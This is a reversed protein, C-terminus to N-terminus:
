GGGLAIFFADIDAGNLLGDSNMDALMPDCNPFVLSYQSPDGLALFFPDIDGGNFLGDCNLDGARFRRLYRINSPPRSPTGWAIESLNNIDPVINDFDDRTIQLFVGSQYLWIDWHRRSSDWRDFAIDAWDNIVPIIGNDTLATTVGAEWFDIADRGTVRDFWTWVVQGSNNIDPAQPAFQGSTLETITGGSVLYANFCGDGRLVFTNNAVVSDVAGPHLRVPWGLNDSFTNGRVRDGGNQMTVQLGADGNQYFACGEVTPAANSLILGADYSSHNGGYRIVCDTLRSLDNAGDNFQLAQWHRPGGASGGTCDVDGLTDDTRSTFVVGAAEFRGADIRIDTSEWMKLLTGAEVDIQANGNIDSSNQFILPADNGWTGGVSTGGGRTVVGLM